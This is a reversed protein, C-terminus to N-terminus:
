DGRHFLPQGRGGSGARLAGIEDSLDYRTDVLQNSLSSMQQSLQDAKGQLAANQRFLGGVVAIAVVASLIHGTKKDM